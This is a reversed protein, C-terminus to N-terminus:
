TTAVRLTPQLNRLRHPAAATFLTPMKCAMSIRCSSSSKAHSAVDPDVQFVKILVEWLEPLCERQKPCGDPKKGGRCKAINERLKDHPLPPDWADYGLLNLLVCGIAWVDVPYGYDPPSTCLEPALSLSTKVVSEEGYENALNGGHMIAQEVFLFLGDDNLFIIDPKIYRHIIGNSHLFLVAETLQRIIKPTMSRDWTGDQLQQALSGRRYYRLIIEIENDERFIDDEDEYKVNAGLLEIINPHGQCLRLLRVEERGYYVVYPNEPSNKMVKIAVRMGKLLGPVISGQGGSGLVNRILCLSNNVLTGFAAFVSTADTVEGFLLGRQESFFRGERERVKRRDTARNSLNNFGLLYGLTRSKDITCGLKSELLTLWHEVRQFSRWNSIDYVFFVADIAGAPLEEADGPVAAVKTVVKEGNVSPYFKNTVCQPDDMVIGDGGENGGTLQGHVFDKGVGSDGLIVVNVVTIHETTNM